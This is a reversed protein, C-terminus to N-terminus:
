KTYLITFHLGFLDDPWPEICYGNTDLNVTYWGSPATYLHFSCDIEGLVHLRKLTLLVNPSNTWVENTPSGSTSLQVIRSRVTDLLEELTGSYTNFTEGLGVIVKIRDM